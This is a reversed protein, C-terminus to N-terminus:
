PALPPPPGLLNVSTAQLVGDPGPTGAALVRKGAVLDAFTAPLPKLVEADAPVKIQYTSGAAAVTLMTGDFADIVANTMINGQEPGAMPIQGPRPTGLATPFIRISKATGDPRGTIGVSLGAKLDAIAGKGEQEIRASEPVLVQKPGTNSAVTLTRGNITDIPGAITPPGAAAPSPSPSAATAPSPAASAVTAPSAAVPPAPAIPKTPEAAPKAAAPTPSAAPGPQCAVTLFLSAAGCLLLASVTRHRL